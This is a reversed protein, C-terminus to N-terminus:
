KTANWTGCGKSTFRVASSPITVTASGPSNDTTIVETLDHDFGRGLEWYCDYGNVSRYTGPAIDAGVVWDGDPFSRRPTAPPAWRTWPGCASSTFAVDTSEIQVVARGSTTDSAIVNADSNGYADLRKWTCNGTPSTYRGPRVTTGVRQLGGPFAPEEITSTTSAVTSSTTAGGGGDDDSSARGSALYGIGAGLLVLVVAAPIARGPKRWWPTRAKRLAARETRTIVPPPPLADQYDAMRVTHDTWGEGDHWRGLRRDRPDQYWGAEM